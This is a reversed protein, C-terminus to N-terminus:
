RTPSRCSRTATSSGPTSAPSPRRSTAQASSPRRPRRKDALLTASFVECVSGTVPDTGGTPQPEVKEVFNTVVDTTEAVDNFAEVYVDFKISNLMAIVGDVISGSLGTGGAAISFVLRCNKVGGVVLGDAAVTAGSLGTKCTGGTFASPPVYSGTKDAIYAQHSYPYNTDDLPRLGDDSGVGIFKGGIKNLEAIVGDVDPAAAVTSAYPFRLTTDYDGIVGTPATNLARKGNHMPADTINIMITLADKRFHLAGFTGVPPADATRANPTPDTTGVTGPWSLGVGTLAKYMAPVDSEPWDANGQVTMSNVAAQSNATITTVFGNTGDIYYYPRVVPFDASGTHPAVPYEVFASVGVALDPIRTKLQAIIGTTPTSLSTKLNAIEGGMSASRDIVFGVDGKNLATSLALPSSTPTPKASGDFSYPEVFYFKGAKAPTKTADKAGAVGILTVEILDDIGDGDSDKKLRDTETADVIGNGNKDEDKDLLLDGDSDIDVYDAKGDGDTDVLGEIKDGVGDGDSDVDQFNRKGDKDPDGLGDDLDLIGDGDADRDWVDPIGDGDTDALGVYKGTADTLEFKDDLGVTKDTSSSDHDNDPDLFDPVGDGDFDGPSTLSCGTPFGPMGLPPCAEDKDLLGNGDSDLDRFNPVGDGDADNLGATADCGAVVWEAKDPIGDGDSDLDLYDPTGDGDTDVPTASCRGEVSDPIGDGDSDITCAAAGCPDPPTEATDVATDTTGTDTDTDAAAETSADADLDADAAEPTTDATVADSTDTPADSGTDDIADVTASDTTTDLASDSLVGTDLAVSTEDGDTAADDGPVVETGTGGGCATLSCASVAFLLVLSTRVRSM